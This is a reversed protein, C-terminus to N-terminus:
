FHLVTRCTKRNTRGEGRQHQRGRAHHPRRWARDIHPYTRRRRDDLDPSGSRARLEDPDVPVMPPVALAVNPDGAM